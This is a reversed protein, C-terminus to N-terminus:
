RVRRSVISSASASCKGGWASHVRGAPPSKMQAVSGSKMSVVSRSARASRSFTANTGPSAAKRSPRPREEIRSLKEPESSSPIRSPM